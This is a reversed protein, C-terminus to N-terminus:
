AGIIEFNGQNRNDRVELGVDRAERILRAADEGSVLTMMVGNQWFQYKDVVADDRVAQIAAEFRGADFSLRDDSEQSDIEFSEELLNIFHELDSAKGILEALLEYHKKTFWRGHSM